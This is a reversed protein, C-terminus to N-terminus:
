GSCPWSRDGSIVGTCARDPQATPQVLGSNQPRSPAARRSPPRARAAATPGPPARGPCGARRVHRHEDRRRRSRDALDGAAREGRGAPRCRAPAARCRRRARGLAVLDLDVHAAAARAIRTTLGGNTVGETRRAGRADRGAHRPASPRSPARRRPSRTGARRAVWSRPSSSAASSASPPTATRTRCCWRRLCARADAADPGDLAGAHWVERLEPGDRVVVGPPDALLDVTVGTTRRFSEWDPAHVVIPRDLLVFDCMVPSYSTVLVDVALLLPHEIM